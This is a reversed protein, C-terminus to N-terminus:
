QFANRSSQVPTSIRVKNMAFVEQFQRSSDAMKGLGLLDLHIYTLVFQRSRNKEQDRKQNENSLKVLHVLTM